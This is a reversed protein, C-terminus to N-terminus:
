GFDGVLGGTIRSYRKSRSFGDRRMLYCGGRNIVCCRGAVLKASGRTMAFLCMAGSKDRFNSTALAISSCKSLRRSVRRRVTRGFHRDRRGDCGGRKVDITVGSPRERGRAKRGM